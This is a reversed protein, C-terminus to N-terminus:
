SLKFWKNTLAAGLKLIIIFRRTVSDPAAYLINKDKDEHMYNPTSTTSRGFGGAAAKAAAPKTSRASLFTL